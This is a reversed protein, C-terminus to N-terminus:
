FGAVRAAARTRPITFIEGSKTNEIVVQTPRVDIVRYHQEFDTGVATFEDDPRVDYLKGTEDFEMVAYTESSKAPIDKVLLHKAGTRRDEVVMESVDMLRGKGQKSNAYRREFKVVRLGTDAIEEGLNVEVSPADSYLVRVAASEDGVSKLLVPLQQERYDKMEFSAAVDERASDRHIVEAGDAREPKRVVRALRPAGQAARAGHSVGVPGAEASPMVTAPMVTAPMIEFPVGAVASLGRGRAPPVTGSDVAGVQLAATQELEASQDEPAIVMAPLVIKAEDIGPVEGEVEALQLENPIAVIEEITEVALEEGSETLMGFEAEADFSPPINLYQAVESNGNAGALNAATAENV